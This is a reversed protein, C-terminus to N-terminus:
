LGQLDSFLTERVAQAKSEDFEGAVRALVDGNRNIVLVYASGTDLLGASQVFADRDVFIPLLNSREQASAYHAMLRRELAARTMPDGPDNVVPMRIWSISQDNQLKLGSIWSEAAKRQDRNFTILALIRDDGVKVAAPKLGLAQRVVAPLHGMVGLQRPTAVALVSAVAVVVFWTLPYAWFPKVTKEPKVPKISKM